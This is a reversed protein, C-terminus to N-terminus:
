DLSLTTVLSPSPLSGDHAAFNHLTTAISWTLAMISSLSLVAALWRGPTLGYSITITHRGTPVALSIFGHPTTPTISTALGDISAQWGPFYFSQITARFPQPSIVTVVQRLPSYEAAVLKAGKPLSQSKLQSSQLVTIPLAPPLQKVTKPLYEGRALFGLNGSSREAYVAADITTPTDVPYYDGKGLGPVSTAILLCLGVIVGAATCMRYCAIRAGSTTLALLANVGAGALLALWVSAAALFRFPFQALRLMPIVEWLWRSTPTLMFICIATILVGAAVYLRLSQSRLAYLGAMGGILAVVGTVASLQPPSSSAADRNSLFPPTAFVHWWPILNGGTAPDAILLLRDIQILNTEALAPLWFFAALGLGLVVPWVLRFRYGSKQDAHAARWGLIVIHVLFAAVFLCASFLHTLLMAALLVASAAGCFRGGRRSYGTSYRAWTWLVWPMLGLTLVEPFGARVVLTYMVYPSFVLSTAAVIAPGPGFLDNIWCYTGAAGGVLAAGVIIQLTLLPNFGLLLLPQALYYLLPPYYHYLPFGYGFGLVPSWRTFFLGQKILYSREIVRYLHSYADYGDPLGRAVTLWVAALGVGIAALLGLRPATRAFAVYRRTCVMSHTGFQVSRGM